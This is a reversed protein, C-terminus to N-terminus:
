AARFPQLTSSRNMKTSSPMLPASNALRGPKRRRIFASGFGSDSPPTVPPGGREIWTVRLRRTDVSDADSLAWSVDVTGGPLSLAGYKSANTALEHLVMGLTAAANARLGVAGGSLLINDHNRNIYPELAAEILSRVSAGSWAGSALLDHTRGM